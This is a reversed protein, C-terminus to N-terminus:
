PKSAPAEGAAQKTIVIKPAFGSVVRGDPLRTEQEEFDIGIVQGPNPSVDTVDLCRISQIQAAPISVIM